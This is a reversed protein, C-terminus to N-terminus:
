LSYRNWNNPQTPNSRGWYRRGYRPRSQRPKMYKDVNRWPYPGIFSEISFKLVNRSFDTDYRALHKYQPLQLLEPNTIPFKGEAFLKEVGEKLDAAYQLLDRIDQKSGDASLDGRASHSFVAKEFDLKLIERLTRVTEKMNYDPANSFFVQNPTVLDAMFAINESKSQSSTANRKARSQSRPPKYVFVTNGNGHNIGFYHFDVKAGGLRITCKTGTWTRDPIYLDPHPNAKMWDVAEEHAIVTAGEDKFVKGGNAHDYHNHSILLFKIPKQTVSRIAALLLKSHDSNFPEFVIVGRKTIIFMSNRQVGQRFIYTYVNESIKVLRQQPGAPAPASTTPAAYVLSSILILIITIFVFPHKM